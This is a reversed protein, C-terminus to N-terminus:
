LPRDSLICGREERSNPLKKWVDGYRAADAVKAPKKILPVDGKQVSLMNEYCRFFFYEDKFLTICLNLM